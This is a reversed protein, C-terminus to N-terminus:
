HIALSKHLYFLACPDALSGVSEVPAAYGPNALRWRSFASAASAGTLRGAYDPHPVFALLFPDM